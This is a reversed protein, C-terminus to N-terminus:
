WADWAAEDVPPVIREDRPLGCTVDSGCLITVAGGRAPWSRLRGVARALHGYAIGHPPLTVLARGNWAPSPVGCGGTRAAAADYYVFLSRAHARPAAASLPRLATPRGDAGRLAVLPERAGGLVLLLGERSHPVAPLLAAVLARLGGGIGMADGADVLADYMAGRDDGASVAALVDRPAVPAQLSVLRVRAPSLLAHCVAGDGEVAVDCAGLTSPSHPMRAGCLAVVGDFLAGTAADAGAGRLLLEGADGDVVHAHMAADGAAAGAGGRGAFRARIGPLVVGLVYRLVAPPLDHLRDHVSAVQEGDEPDVEALPRCALPPAAGGGGGSLPGGGGGGDGGGGGGDGGGGGGGEPNGGRLLARAARDAIWRRYLSATLGADPGGREAADAARLHLLLARVDERRLGAALYVAVSACLATDPHTFADGAGGAVLSVAEAVLGAGGSRRPVLGVDVGVRAGLVRPLVTHLLTHLGNLPPLTAPPLVGLPVEFPRILYKVCVATDVEPPVCGAERLVGIGAAGLM